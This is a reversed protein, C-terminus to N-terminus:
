QFFYYYYGFSYFNCKRSLWGIFVLFFFCGSVDIVVVDSQMEVIFVVEFKDLVCCVFNVVYVDFVDGQVVFVLVGIVGSGKLGVIFFWFILMLDFLWGKVVCLVVFQIVVQCDDVLYVVGDICWCFFQIWFLQCLVSDVQQIVYCIFFYVIVDGFVFIQVFLVIKIQMGYVVVGFM